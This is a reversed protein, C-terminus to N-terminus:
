QTQEWLGMKLVTALSQEQANYIVRGSQPVTRVLHHFQKEIAHINEFIDARDFELNNLV